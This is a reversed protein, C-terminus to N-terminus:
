GSPVSVTLHCWADQRAYNELMLWYYDSELAAIAWGIQWKGETRTLRQFYGGSDLEMPPLYDHAHAPDFPANGPLLMVSVGETTTGLDAGLPVSGEMVIEVTEGQKLFFRTYYRNYRAYPLGRSVVEDLTLDRWDECAEAPITEYNQLLFTANELFGDGPNNEVVINGPSSSKKGDLACAGVVILLVALAATASALLLRRRQFVSPSQEPPVVTTVTNENHCL